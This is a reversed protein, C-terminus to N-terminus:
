EPTAARDDSPPVTRLDDQQGTAARLSKERDEVRASPAVPFLLLYHL